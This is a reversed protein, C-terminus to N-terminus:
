GNRFLALAAPEHVAYARASFATRRVVGAEVLRNVVQAVRSLSVGMEVAMERQTPPYGRAVVHRRIAEIVQKQRDATTAKM